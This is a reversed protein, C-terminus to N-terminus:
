AEGEQPDYRQPDYVYTVLETTSPDFHSHHVELGHERACDAVPEDSIGEVDDYGASRCEWLGGVAAVSVDAVTSMLKFAFGREAETHQIADSM